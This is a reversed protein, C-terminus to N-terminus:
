VRGEFNGTQTELCKELATTAEDNGQKSAKTLWLIALAGNEEAKVASDALTLYHQGLKM